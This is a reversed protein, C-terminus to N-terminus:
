ELGKTGSTQLIETRQMQSTTMQGQSLIGQGQPKINNGYTTLAHQQDDTQKNTSKINSSSSKFTVDAQRDKKESCGFVFWTKGQNVTTLAPDTVAAHSM